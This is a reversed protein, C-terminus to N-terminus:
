EAAELCQHQEQPDTTFEMQFNAVTTHRDRAADALYHDTPQGEGNWTTFSALM